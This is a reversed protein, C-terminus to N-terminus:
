GAELSRKYSRAVEDRLDAWAREYLAVFEPAFRIETVNRPRPLAVPYRAKITGPGATMVVIEDSLAIAEELDHTIFLVTRPVTAERGPAGGGAGSSGGPNWVNLLENEMLNRTQGDLASFPEDMLLVSPDRVLSQALQARKRMGGSLEHPYNDIFPGLGVRVIWEKARAPDREGRFRLPLEVNERVTRWPLLADRQFIFGVDTRVGTVRSGLLTVEGVTPPLLGSVLGLLTSKGCGSPGVVSVFRGAPIDLDVHEIALYPRKRPPRYVKAVDRLSIAPAMRPIIEAGRRGGAPALRAGAAGGARARRAAHDLLDGRDAGARARRGRVRPRDWRRIAPVGRRLGRRDLQVAPVVGRPPTARRVRGRAGLRVRARRGRRDAAGHPTSAAPGPPRGLLQPGVFPARGRSRRLPRSRARRPLPLRRALAAAHRPSGGARGGRADPPAARRTGARAPSASRGSPRRGRRRSAWARTSRSCRHTRTRM